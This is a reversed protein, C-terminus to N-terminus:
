QHGITKLSIQTNQNEDLLYLLTLSPVAIQILVIAPILTWVCEIIQGELFGLNIYNNVITSIIIVIVFTTIFSLVIMTFDNFFLFEEIVPSLADQLGWQSWTIM